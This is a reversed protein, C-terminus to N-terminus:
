GAGVGAVPDTQRAGDLCVGNGTRTELDTTVEGMVMYCSAPITNLDNSGLVVVSLLSYVILM